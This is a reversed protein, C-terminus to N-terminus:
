RTPISCAPSSVDVNGEVNRILTLYKNRMRIDTYVPMNGNKNRRVFYSHHVPKATATPQVAVAQAVSQSYFRLRRAPQLLQTQISTLM